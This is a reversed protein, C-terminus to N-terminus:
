GRGHYFRDRLHWLCISSFPLLLLLGFVDLRSMVANWCMYVFSFRKSMSMEDGELTERRGARGGQEFAPDADLTPLSRRPSCGRGGAM